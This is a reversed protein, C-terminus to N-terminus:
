KLKEDLQNARRVFLYALVWYFLHFLLVTTWFNLSLGALFPRGYWWEATGSLFPIMLTVVFFVTGFSFSLKRQQKYSQDVQRMEEETVFVSTENLSMDKRAM